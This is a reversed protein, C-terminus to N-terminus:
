EYRLSEVPNKSAAKITEYSTSILIIILLMAAGLIFVWPQAPLKNASPLSAYALWATPFAIGLAYTVLWYYEKNLLHFIRLSSSGNIKRIGIEKTRRTVSYSVLGFMGVVALLVNIFTFFLLTKNVSHYIKFSNESNFALPVDRIEFPDNPFIKELESALVEKARKQMEKESRFAFIWNGKVTNPALVLISPDVPNHMDQYVFDKVVGVVKLKNDNIRKGIPDEWGFCRAATENIICANGADGRFHSSFNRGAVLKADLVSIYDYSVDNFRCNIKVNPDGGEWNVSGGGFRVFPLNKSMSVDKIEPYQLLRSRLQDFMVETESVTVEAYLLGEKEFGLDKEAIYKIQMSFSLTLVILFLSIAFQSTVLVKKLNFSSSRKKSYFNGKVLDTIKNSAMFWAPYTGSFIGTIVAILITSLIFKWDNRWILEIQKDVINSFVPLFLEAVLFAFILAILSVVVTESLFQLVLSNRKSGIAKKVAVEKGRMSAKALSLNIYNFGAMTLIFIGILGFLKLVILYDNKDNFNLYVKSLPCLQLKENKINEYKTFLDRIKAEAQKHSAGQNLLAYTMCDGSWSNNRAINKLPKLTAFSIIYTPRLSTNFPLDKYVGTVKLPYKKDLLVTKDLASNDGFLKEAVTESLAVTFPENLATSKNGAIFEYTFLDFFCSDAHIGKDDYIKHESDTFLFSGGNERIVSIKEFEPFHGEIMQATFARTHPSIDNGNTTYLTQTFQRQIRYIRKYNQHNKDWNFEFRVFLAILIFASFGITLGLINTASYIKNRVLKRFWLKLFITNIM